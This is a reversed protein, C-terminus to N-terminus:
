SLHFTKVYWLVCSIYEGTPLLFRRIVQDPSWDVPASILFYKVPACSRNSPWLKNAFIDFSVITLRSCLSFLKLLFRRNLMKTWFFLRLLSLARNRRQYPPMLTQICLTSLRWVVCPRRLYVFSQSTLSYTLFPCYLTQLEPLLCHSLFSPQLASPNSPPSTLLNLADSLRPVLGKFRSHVLRHSPCLSCATHVIDLLAPASQHDSV